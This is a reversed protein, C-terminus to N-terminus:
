SRQLSRDPRATTLGIGHVGLQRRLVLIEADKVVDNWGTSGSYRLSAGSPGTSSSAVRRLSLSDNGTLGAIWYVLAVTRM